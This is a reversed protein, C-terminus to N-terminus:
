RDLCGLIGLLTTKGSGSRGMIAVFEGHRVVLDVSKLAEVSLEGSRYVKAVDSLEIVAAAASM